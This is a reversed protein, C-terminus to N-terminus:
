CSSTSWTRDVARCKFVGWAEIVFRFVDGEPLKGQDGWSSSIEGEEPDEPM